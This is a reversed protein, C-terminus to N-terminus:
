EGNAAQDFGPELKLARFISDLKALRIAHAALDAKQRDNPSSAEVYAAVTAERRFLHARGPRLCAVLLHRRILEERIGGHQARM